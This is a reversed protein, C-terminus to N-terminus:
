VAYANTFIDKWAVYTAATLTPWMVFLGLGLPIIALIMLLMAMIGFIFMPWVNRWSGIFSMKIAVFADVDHLMVLQPTLWIAMSFLFISIFFVPIFVIFGVSTFIMEPTVGSGNQSLLAPVGILILGLIVMIVFFAVMMGLQMAGLIALKGGKENFGAFLHGVEYDGGNDLTQAGRMFGGMFIPQLINNVISVLPIFAIVVTIVFFIIMNVIWIGPSRAFLHFGETIWFWGRGAPLRRPESLSLGADAQQELKSTPPQYPNYSNM